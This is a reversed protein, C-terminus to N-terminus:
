RIPPGSYLSGPRSPAASRAADPGDDLHIICHSNVEDTGFHAEGREDVYFDPGEAGLFYDGPFLQDFADQRHRALLVFIWWRTLHHVAIEGHPDITALYPLIQSSRLHPIRQLNFCITQSIADVLARPDGDTTVSEPQKADGFLDLKEQEAIGWKLGRGYFSLRGSPPLMHEHSCGLVPSPGPVISVKWKGKGIEMRSLETADIVWDSDPFKKPNFHRRLGVFCFPPKADTPTWAAFPEPSTSRSAGKSRPLQPLIRLVGDPSTPWSSIWDPSFVLAPDQSPPRLITLQPAESEPDSLSAAPKDVEDLGQFPDDQPEGAVPEAGSNPIGLADPEAREDANTVQEFDAEPDDASVETLDSLEDQVTSLAEISGLNQARAVGMEPAHELPEPYQDKAGVGDSIDESAVRSIAGVPEGLFAQLMGKAAGELFADVSAFVVHGQESIGGGLADIKTLVRADQRAKTRGDDGPEHASFRGSEETKTRADELLESLRARAKAFNDPPSRQVYDGTLAALFDDETQLAAKALEEKTVRGASWVVLADRLSNFLASNVRIAKGDVGTAHIMSFVPLMYKPLMHRWQENTSARRVIEGQLMARVAEHETVWRSLGGLLHENIMLARQLEEESDLLGALHPNDRFRTETKTIDVPNKMERSYLLRPKRQKMDLFAHEFRAVVDDATSMRDGDPLLEDLRSMMAIANDETLGLSLAVREMLSRRRRQENRRQIPIEGSSGKNQQDAPDHDSAGIGTWNPAPDSRNGLSAPANGSGEDPLDSGTPIDDGSM